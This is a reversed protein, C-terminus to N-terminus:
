PNDNAIEILLLAGGFVGVPNATLFGGVMCGVAFLAGLLRLKKGGTVNEMELETL